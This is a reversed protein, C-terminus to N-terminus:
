SSTSGAATKRIQYIHLQSQAESILGDLDSKAVVSTIGAASAENAPISGGHFTFLIIPSNPLLRRLEPAAELGNMVPMAHDLVVLDPKHEAAAQIAQAGDAVEACVSFGASEFAARLVGLIGAFDDVLLVSQRRNPM